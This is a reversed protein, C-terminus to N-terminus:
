ASNRHDATYDYYQTERIFDFKRVEGKMGTKDIPQISVNRELGEAASDAPAQITRNGESNFWNSWVAHRNLPDVSPEDAIVNGASIVTLCIAATLTMLKKM